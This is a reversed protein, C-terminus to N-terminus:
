FACRTILQVPRLTKLSTKMRGPTVMRKQQGHVQWDAGIKPNLYIDVEDEHFEQHEISCENLTNRIATMKEDRHPDRIHRTPTARCWVLGASPLWCLM